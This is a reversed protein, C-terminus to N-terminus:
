AAVIFYRNKIQGTSFQALIFSGHAFCGGLRGQLAGQRRAFCQAARHQNLRRHVPFFGLFNGLGRLFFGNTLGNWFRSKM